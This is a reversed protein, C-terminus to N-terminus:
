RPSERMATETHSGSQKRKRERRRGLKRGLHHAEQWEKLSNHEERFHPPAEPYCSRLLCASINQDLSKIISGTPLAFESRALNLFNNSLLLSFLFSLINRTHAHIHGRVCVCMQASTHMYPPKYTVRINHICLGSLYMTFALIISLEENGGTNTSLKSSM